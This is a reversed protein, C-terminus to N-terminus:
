EINSYDHVGILLRRREEFTIRYADDSIVDYKKTGNPGDGAQQQSILVQRFVDTVYLAREAETIRDARLIDGAALPIARRIAARKSDQVSASGTVGNVVIDNVIARSGEKSVTFVVRVKEDGGKPPLEDVSPRVEADIFGERAYVNLIQDNDARVQSRSYPAGIVTAVEQRLRDEPFAKAGEIQIEAVRTLAGEKVDFTIILSDGAPSIGELVTAEAHRYGLDKMLAAVTRRDEELMTNSTYGRGYGGLFPLFALASAKRSKLQPVIDEVTLKNTGTIRIDTLRLRRHLNVDYVINITHDDLRSPDINACSEETGIEGGMEPVPPTITCTFTLDAFFYGQQQLKNLIRRDGEEIISFDFAGERKIPLLQQQKKESLDYHQVSVNVIPGTKGKLDINIENKESDFTVQPDRLQPALYHNAILAQKIRNLDDGLLDRTFPAGPQLKLSTQVTATDFGTIGIGFQGIHAQEGPTITFVVIRRTGTADVPDPNEEHDVTAKYYGRDRM